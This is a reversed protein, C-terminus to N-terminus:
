MRNNHLYWFSVYVRSIIINNYVPRTHSNVIRPRNKYLRVDGIVFKENILCNRLRKGLNKSDWDVTEEHLWMKLDMLKM